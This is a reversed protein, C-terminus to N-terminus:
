IQNSTGHLVAKQVGPGGTMSSHTLSLLCTFLSCLQFHIHALFKGISCGPNLKNLRVLAAANPLAM